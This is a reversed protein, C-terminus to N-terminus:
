KQVSRRYHSLEARLWEGTPIEARGPCRIYYLRGTATSRTASLEIFDEPTRIKEKFYDYKQRIHEAAKKSDYAKGNRIFTCNSEEVYKLLQDITAALNNDMASTPYSPFFLITVALIVSGHM